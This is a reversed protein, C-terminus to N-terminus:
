EAQAHTSDQRVGNDRGLAISVNQAKHRSLRAPTIGEPELGYTEIFEPLNWGTAPRRRAAGEFLTM